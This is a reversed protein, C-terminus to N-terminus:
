RSGFYLNYGLSFEIFNYNLADPSYAVKYSGTITYAVGLNLGFLQLGIEPKFGVRTQLRIADTFSNHGPFFMYIGSGLGYYFHINSQPNLYYRVKFLFSNLLESSYYTGTLNVENNFSAVDVELGIGFQENHMYEGDLAISFGGKDSAHDTSTLVVLGGHAGVRFKNSQGFGTISLLMCISVSLFQKIM